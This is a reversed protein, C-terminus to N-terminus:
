RLRRYALLALGALGVFALSGAEPVAAILEVRFLRTDFTDATTTANTPRIAFTDFAFSGGNPTPDSVFSTMTGTGNINGGSMTASVDLGNTATRTFTWVLTYETGSAYGTANQTAGNAVPSFQTWDGSGSLLSGSANHELLEFPRSHGFTQGMNGFIAYGTYAASGPTGPGTVRSAAPSNVVALRFNQSGNSLNVNAPTFAWTIRLQDGAAALTAPSAEPTFYTTWSASSTGFGTGRLPGGPAVPDLTGAGGQFWASELNGDGDGDVGNESYTPSIPDTDTGDLWTDNVIVAAASLKAILLGTFFATTLFSPRSM